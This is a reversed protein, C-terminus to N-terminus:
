LQDLTLHNGLVKDVGVRAIAWVEARRIRHTLSHSIECRTDMVHVDGGDLWAHVSGHVHLLAVCLNLLEILLNVNQLTDNLAWKDNARGRCCSVSREERRKDEHVKHQGTEEKPVIDECTGGLQLDPEIGHGSICLPPSDARFNFPGQLAPLRTATPGLQADIFLDLHRTEVPRWGELRLSALREACGTVCHPPGAIVRALWMM